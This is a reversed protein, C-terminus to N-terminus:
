SKISSSFIRVNWWEWSTFTWKSFALLRLLLRFNCNLTNETSRNSVRKKEKDSDSKWNLFTKCRHVLITFTSFSFFPLLLSPLCTNFTRQTLLPHSTILVYSFFKSQFLHTPFFNSISFNTLNEKQYMTKFKNIILYESHIWSM